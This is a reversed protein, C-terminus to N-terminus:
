DDLIERRAVFEVRARSLIRARSAENESGIGRVELESEIM